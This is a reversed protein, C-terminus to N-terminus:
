NDYKRFMKHRFSKQIEVTGNKLVKEDHIRKTTAYVPILQNKFAWQVFYCTAGFDGQVLLCDGPASNKELWLRIDNLYGALSEIEPPVNSWKKLLNGPLPVIENVSLNLRADTVQYPSLTHSFLLILKKNM